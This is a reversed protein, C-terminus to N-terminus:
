RDGAVGPPVSAVIPLAGAVIPPVGLGSLQKNFAGLDAGLLTDMTRKHTLWDEGLTSWMDSKAADLAADATNVESHLNHLYDYLLNRPAGAERRKGVGHQVIENKASELKDALSKGAKIAAPNSLKSTVAVIQDHVSIM